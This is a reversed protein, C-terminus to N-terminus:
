PSPATRWSRIEEAMLGFGAPFAQEIVHIDQAIRRAETVAYETERELSPRESEYVMAKLQPKTFLTRKETVALKWQAETM